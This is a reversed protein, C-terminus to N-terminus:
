LCFPMWLSHCTKDLRRRYRFWLVPPPTTTPMHNYPLFASFRMSLHPVPPSLLGATLSRVFWSPLFQASGCAPASGRLLRRANATSGASIPPPMRLHALVFVLCHSFRFACCAPLFPLCANWFGPPLVIASFAASFAPPLGFGRRRLLVRLVAFGCRDMYCARYFGSHLLVIYARV